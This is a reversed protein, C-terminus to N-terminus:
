VATAGFRSASPLESTPKPQRRKHYWCEYVFGLFAIVGVGIGIYTGGPLCPLNVANDLAISGKCNDNTCEVDDVLVDSAIPTPCTSDTSKGVCIQAINCEKVLSLRLAKVEFERSCVDSQSDAAADNVVAAEITSPAAVQVADPNVNAAPSTFKALLANPDPGNKMLVAWDLPKELSVRLVCNNADCPDQPAITTAKPVAQMSPDCQLPVRLSFELKYENIRAKDFNCVKVNLNSQGGQLADAVNELLCTKGAPCEGCNKVPPRRKHSPATHRLLIHSQHSLTHQLELSVTGAMPLGPIVVVVVVAVADVEDLLIATISDLSITPNRKRHQRKAAAEAEDDSYVTEDAEEDFLNSADTGKDRIKEPVIYTTHETAYFVSKNNATQMPIKDANEFRVLYMPMLVPGFVEDVCGLVTRDEFCLVSGEDLPKANADSKITVMLGPRSVNLITGCRAIPCDATLEVEPERVPVREVENATKLPGSAKAEEKAMAAEIEARLKQPDDDDGDEEDDDEEEVDASTSAAAPEDDDDSEDDEDDEDDMAVNATQAPTIAPATIQSSITQIDMDAYMAAIEIDAVPAGDVFSKPQPTSDEMEADEDEHTGTMEDNAQGNLTSQNTMGAHVAAEPVVQTSMAVDSGPLAHTPPQQMAAGNMASSDM